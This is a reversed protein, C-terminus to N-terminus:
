LTSSRASIERIRSSFDEDTIVPYAGVTNVDEELEVWSKCGTYDERLPLTVPEPLAFVRVILAHLSDHWRYFREEVVEDAWVHHGRFRLLEAFSRIQFAESVAAFHRFVVEGAEPMDAEIDKLLPRAPAILDDPSQHSYTPFLLFEPHDVRFVGGQEVIGGKRLIVIQTGQALARCIVAWEKFAAKM